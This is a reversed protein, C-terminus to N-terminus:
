RQSRLMIRAVFRHGPGERAHDIEEVPRDLRELAVSLIAVHRTPAALLLIRELRLEAHYWVGESMAREIFPRIAPVLGVLKARVLLGLSGTVRRGVALAARRGKRDDICVWEISRERALQIVAAEGADLTAIAVSDLPTTLPVAELWPVRIDPYGSRAGEDLETRVQLPCVYGWDSFLDPLLATTSPRM